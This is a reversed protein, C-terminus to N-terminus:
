YINYTVWLRRGGREGSAMHKNDLHRVTQFTLIGTRLEGKLNFNENEDESYDGLWKMILVKDGAKWGRHLLM